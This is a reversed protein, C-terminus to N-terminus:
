WGESALTSRTSASATAEAVTLENHYVLAKLQQTIWTNVESDTAASNDENLVRGLMAKVRTQQANTITPGVQPM